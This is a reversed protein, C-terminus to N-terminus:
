SNKKQKEKEAKPKIRLRSWTLIIIQGPIGLLYLQWLNYGIVLVTLHGMALFSWMLLSIILYNTRPRFWISNFILWVVASLPVAAIFALWEGRFSPLFSFAVYSLTACLWVLTISLFTIAVHSKRYGHAESNPAFTLMEGKVLDDISVGFLSAIEILTMIDPISEAREWKSVAKDSYNLQEALEFQTMSASKRLSAINKAINAKIDQM